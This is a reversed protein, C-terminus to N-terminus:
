TLSDEWQPPLPPEQYGRALIDARHATLWAMDEVDGLQPISERQRRPSREEQSPQRAVVLPRTPVSTPFAAPCLSPQSERLAISVPLAETM